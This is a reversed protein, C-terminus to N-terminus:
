TNAITIFEQELIENRVKVSKLDQLKRNKLRVVKVIDPYNSKLDASFDEWDINFSVNQIVASLQPPISSKKLIFDKGVLQFSWHTEDFLIEFSNTTELFV